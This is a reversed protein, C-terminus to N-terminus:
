AASVNSKFLVLQEHPHKACFDLLLRGLSQIGDMKIGMILDCDIISNLSYTGASHDVILRFKTSHPKPMAHVPISYMGPLLDPGFPESFRHLAVEEVVGNHLLNPFAVLCGITVYYPFYGTFWCQGM